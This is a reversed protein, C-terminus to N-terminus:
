SVEFDEATLSERLAWQHTSVYYLIYAECRQLVANLELIMLSCPVFKILWSDGAILDNGKM